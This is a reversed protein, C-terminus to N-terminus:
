VSVATKEAPRLGPMFPDRVWRAFVLVGVLTFVANLAFNATFGVQEAILGSLVAGLFTPIGLMLSQLAIYSALRDPPALARLFCFAATAWGVTGIVSLVQLPFAQWTQSAAIWAPAVLASWTGSLVMIRKPNGRDVLSGYFRWSLLSTLVGVANLLGVTGASAKLGQVWFVPLQPASLNTSFGLLAGAFCFLVLDRDRSLIEPFSPGPRGPAVGEMRTSVLREEPIRLIIYCKLIHVALAILAGVQYGTLGRMRNIMSGAVATALVTAVGAATNYDAWVRGLATRPIPEMMLVQWAPQGTYAGIAAWGYLLIILWVALPGNTIEPVLAYGAFTMTWMVGSTLAWIYRKRQPLRGTLWAGLLPFPAGALFPMGTLLGVHSRTGGLTLAYLPLFPVVFSAGLGGLFAVSLVLWIAHLQNRDEGLAEQWTFLRWL